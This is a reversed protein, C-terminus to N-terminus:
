HQSHLGTLTRGSLVSSPTKTAAVTWRAGPCPHGGTTSAFMWHTKRCSRNFFDQHPVRVEASIVRAATHEYRNAIAPLKPVGLFM